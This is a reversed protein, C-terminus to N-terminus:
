VFLQVRTSVIPTIGLTQGPGRSSGKCYDMVGVGAGLGDGRAHEVTPAGTTYPAILYFFSSVYRDGLDCRYKAVLFYAHDRPALTVLRPPRHRFYQSSHSYAFTLLRGASTYFRVTPYGHIQCTRTSVNTLTITFADEGLQASVAGPLSFSLQTATCETSSTVTTTTSKSVKAASSGVAPGLLTAVIALTALAISV